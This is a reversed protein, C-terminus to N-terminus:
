FSVKQRISELEKRRDELAHESDHMLDMRNQHSSAIEQVDNQLMNLRRFAFKCHHEISM